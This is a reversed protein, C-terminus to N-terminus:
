PSNIVRMPKHVCNLFVLDNHDSTTVVVLLESLWILCGAGLEIGERAVLIYLFGGEPPKQKKPAFQM